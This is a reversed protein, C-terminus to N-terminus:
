VFGRKKLQEIDHESFQTKLYDSKHGCKVCYCPQYYEEEGDPWYSLSWRLPGESDKYKHIGILCLINM